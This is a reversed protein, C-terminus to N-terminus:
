WVKEGSPILHKERLEEQRTVVLHLVNELVHLVVDCPLKEGLIEIVPLVSGQHVMFVHSGVKISFKRHGTMSFIDPDFVFNEERLKKVLRLLLFRIKLKIM